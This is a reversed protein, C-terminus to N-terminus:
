RPLVAIADKVGELAAHGPAALRRAFAETKRDAPFLCEIKIQQLAVDRPMAFTTLTTFFSVEDDGLKLRMVLFPLDGPDGPLARRLDPMDPYRLLEDRLRVADPNTGSSAERQVAQLLPGAFEAWNLVHRRLGKPHCLVHLANEAEVDSLEYFRRLAGFIRGAADNRMRINWAHDLVIAPFPEQQALIFGLANRVPELEPADLNRNSFVPTYGAAVLFVNQEALPLELVEGLRLVMGRSPLSRGTELFSIHRASVDAETALALQSLRRLTRWHRLL